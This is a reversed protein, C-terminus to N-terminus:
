VMETEVDINNERYMEIDITLELVKLLEAHLLQPIFRMLSETATKVQKIMSKKRKKSIYSKQLVASRFDLNSLRLSNHM